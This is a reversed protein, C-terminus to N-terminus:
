KPLRDGPFGSARLLTLIEPHSAFVAGRHNMFTSDERNLDLPNGTFDCAIAGAEQFVCATAAFDWLSGGGQTPKPLKFYLGPANDLVQIANMVAGGHHRIDLGKLGSKQAAHALQKLIRDADERACFSQDVPLTLTSNNTNKNQSPPSWPSQNRYAGAGKFASYTTQTIPEHIVGMVPEGSRSVLAISVAYGPKSQTFALTGDLPDICWFYEKVLRQRDDAAEESLLALDFQSLSPSLAEVIITQCHRDVETVVQAALSDGGDKHEVQVQKASYQRIIEGAQNATHCALQHLHELDAKSLNM